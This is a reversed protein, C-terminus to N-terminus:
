DRAPLFLMAGPRLGLQDVHGMVPRQAALLAHAHIRSGHHTLVGTQGEAFFGVITGRAQPWSGRFPQHEPDPETAAAARPCRGNIVHVKVAALPGEVMFPVVREHGLGSREIAAALFAEFQEPTVDTDVAVVQWRPVRAAVLLTARLDGPEPDQRAILEGDIVRATWTEGNLISIEGALDQIAGVAVTDPKAVDAVRVRGETKGDRLVEQMTGWHQVNWRGASSACGSVLTFSTLLALCTARAHM